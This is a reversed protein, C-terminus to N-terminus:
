EFFYPLKNKTIKIQNLYDIIKRHLVKIECDGDFIKVNKKSSISKFGNFIIQHFKKEKLEFRTELKKKDLSRKVSLEPDLSIVITIDPMLNSAFNKHLYKLLSYSVKNPLIQYCLTSYFFRDCIVINKKLNPLIKKVVHEHRAAYVLLLETLPLLDDNIEKNVLIKRIKESFITGGPERTFFFNEKIKKLSKNLLKIQTSKGSGDIGEFVIFKKM